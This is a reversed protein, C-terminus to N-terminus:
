GQKGRKNGGLQPSQKVKKGGTGNIDADETKVTSRRRKGQLHPSTNTSPGSNSGQQSQQAAMPPAMHSSAPSQVMMPNAMGALHPSGNALINAQMAPSMAMFGETGSQQVMMPGNPMRNIGQQQMQLLAPNQPRQQGQPQRYSELVSSLAKNISLDSNQSAHSILDSMHGFIEYM